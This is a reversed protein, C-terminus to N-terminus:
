IENYTASTKLVEEVPVEAAATASRGGSFEPPSPTAQHGHHALAAIAAASGQIVKFGVRTAAATSGIAATAVGAALGTPLGIAAGAVSGAASAGVTAATEAVDVVGAGVAGAM